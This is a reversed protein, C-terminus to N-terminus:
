GPHRRFAPPDAPPSVQRPCSRCLAPCEVVLRGASHSCTAPAPRSPLTRCPVPSPLHSNESLFPRCSVPDFPPRYKSRNAPCVVSARPHCLHHYSAPRHYPRRAASCHALSTPSAPRCSLPPLWTPCCYNLAASFTPHFATPASPSHFDSRM